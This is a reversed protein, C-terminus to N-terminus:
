HNEYYELARKYFKLDLPHKVGDLNEYDYYKNQYKIFAHSPPYRGTMIKFEKSIDDSSMYEVDSYKNSMFEAFYDCYGNNFEDPSINWSFQNGYDDNIAATIDEKVANFKTKISSM